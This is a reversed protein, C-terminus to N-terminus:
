PAKGLWPNALRFRVGGVGIGPKKGGKKTYALVHRPKNKPNNKNLAVAQKKLRPM